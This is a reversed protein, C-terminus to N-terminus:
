KRIKEKNKNKKKEIQTSKIKNNWKMEFLPRYQSTKHTLKVCAPTIVSFFLRGPPFAEM